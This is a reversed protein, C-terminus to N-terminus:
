YVPAYYGSRWDVHLKSRGSAPDVKVQVRHYKGDHPLYSPAYGIVYQNHLELGIRGAIEPLDNLNAVPFLRGGTRGTIEDLLGPGALEEVSLSRGASEFLGLAYILVDSERVLGRIERETYRSRNDGGDSFIVLAKRSKASKKVEKLGHAIADLLATRGRAESAAMQKQIEQTESTFPYALRATDNFEILFFEDEPNATQLFQAVAARSKEMKNRMSGSADFVLGVALPGDEASVQLVPQEVNGEFVHFNDKTLGAIPHNQADTVTAPILVLNTDVRISSHTSVDPAPRAARPTISVLSDGYAESTTTGAIWLLGLAPLVRRKGRLM